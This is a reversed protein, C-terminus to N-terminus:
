IYNYLYYTTKVKLISKSDQEGAGALKYSTAIRTILFLTIIYFSHDHTM